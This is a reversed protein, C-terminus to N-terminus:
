FFAKPSGKGTLPTRSLNIEISVIVLQKIAKFKPDKSNSFRLNLDFKGRKLRLYGDKILYNIYHDQTSIVNILRWILSFVQWIM